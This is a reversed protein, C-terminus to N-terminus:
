HDWEDRLERIRAVADEVTVEHKLNKRVEVWHQHMEDATLPQRAQEEEVTIKVSADAPLGERLEEPLKSVPYHELVIKNM